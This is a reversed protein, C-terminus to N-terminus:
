VGPLLRLALEKGSTVGGAEVTTEKGVVLVVGLRLAPAMALAPSPFMMVFLSDLRLQARNLCFPWGRHWNHDIPRVVEELRHARSANVWMEPSTRPCLTATPRWDAAEVHTTASPDVRM